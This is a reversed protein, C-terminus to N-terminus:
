PEFNASTNYREIFKYPLGCSHHWSELWHESFLDGFVITSFIPIGRLYESLETREKVQWPYKTGYIIDPITDKQEEALERNVIQEVSAIEGGHTFYWTRYYPDIMHWSNNYWFEPVTHHSVSDDGFLWIMRGKFGAAKCLELFVNVQQDCYGEGKELLYLRSLDEPPTGPAPQQMAKNLFESVNILAKDPENSKDIYDEWIIHYVLSEGLLARTDPGSIALIAFPLFYILVFIAGIVLLTTRIFGRFLRSDM